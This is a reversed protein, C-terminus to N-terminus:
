LHTRSPLFPCGRQGHQQCDDKTKRAHQVHHPPLTISFPHPPHPSTSQATLIVGGLLENEIKLEGPQQSTQLPIKRRRREEEEEEAEAEAEEGREGVVVVKKELM